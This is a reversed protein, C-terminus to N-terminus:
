LNEIKKQESDHIYATLILFFSEKIKGNNRNMPTRATTALPAAAGVWAGGGRWIKPLENKPCCSFIQAFGAKLSTTM